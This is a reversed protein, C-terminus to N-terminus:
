YAARGKIALLLLDLMGALDPALVGKDQPAVASCSSSRGKRALRTLEASHCAAAAHQTSNRVGTNNSITRAHSRVTVPL